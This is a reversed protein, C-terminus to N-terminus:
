HKLKEYAEIRKFKDDFQFLIENLEVAGFSNKSRFKHKVKLHISKDFETKADNFEQTLENYQKRNLSDIGLDILESKLHGVGSENLANIFEINVISDSEIEARLEIILSELRTALYTDEFIITDIESTEVSQYSSPDDLNKNMWDLILKEYEKDNNSQCYSLSIILIISISIKITKSIM